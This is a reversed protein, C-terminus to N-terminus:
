IREINFLRNEKKEEDDKEVSGITEKSVHNGYCFLKIGSAGYRSIIEDYIIHTATKQILGISVTM